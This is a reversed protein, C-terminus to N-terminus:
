RPIPRAIQDPLEEIKFLRELRYDRGFPLTIDGGEKFYITPGTALVIEWEWGGPWGHRNTAIVRYGLSRLRNCMHSLTKPNEWVKPPPPPPGMALVQATGPLPIPYFDADLWSQAMVWSEAPKPRAPTLAALLQVLRVRRDRDAATPSPAVPGMEAPGFDRVIVRVGPGMRFVRHPRGLANECDEEVIDTYGATRIRARVVRSRREVKARQSSRIKHSYMEPHFERALVERKRGIIEIKDENRYVTVITPEKTRIAIYQEDRVIAEIRTYKKIRPIIERTLRAEDYGRM